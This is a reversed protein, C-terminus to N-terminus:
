VYIQVKTKGNGNGGGTRHNANTSDRLSNSSAAHRSPRERERQREQERERKSEREKEREKEARLRERELQVAASSAHSILPPRLPIHHGSQSQGLSSSLSAPNNALSKMSAISNSPSLKQPSQQVPSSRTPSTESSLISQLQSNTPLSSSMPSDLLDHLQFRRRQDGPDRARREENYLYQRGLSTERAKPEKAQSPTHRDRSPHDATPSTSCSGMTVDQAKPPLRSVDSGMLDLTKPITMALGSSVRPAHPNTPIPIPEVTPRNPVDHSIVRQDNWQKNNVKKVDDDDEALASFGGLIASPLSPINAPLPSLHFMDDKGQPRLQADGVKDAKIFQGDTGSTDMRNEPGYFHRVDFSRPAEPLPYKANKLDDELRKCESLVIAYQKRWEEDLQRYHDRLSKEIALATEKEDVSSRELEAYKREAADRESDIQVRLKECDAWLGRVSESEVGLKRQTETLNYLLLFSVRLDEHQDHPQTKLWIHCQDILVRLESAPAGVKVIRTIDTQYRRAEHSYEVIESSPELTETATILAM